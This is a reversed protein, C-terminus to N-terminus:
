SGWLLQLQIVLKLVFPYHKPLTENSIKNWSLIVLFFSFTQLCSKMVIAKESAGSSNWMKWALWASSALHVWSYYLFNPLAATWTSFLFVHAKLRIACLSSLIMPNSTISRSLLALRAIKPAQQAESLLCSQSQSRLLLFCLSFLSRSIIYLFVWSYRKVFSDCNM